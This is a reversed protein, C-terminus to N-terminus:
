CTYIVRTNSEQFGSLLVIIYDLGGKLCGIAKSQKFCSNSNGGHSPFFDTQADGFKMFSKLM